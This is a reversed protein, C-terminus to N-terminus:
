FPRKSKNDIILVFEFKKNIKNIEVLVESVSGRIIKENETTLDCALAIPTNMGFIESVDKLLQRVRYPTEM